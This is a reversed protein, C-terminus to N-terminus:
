MLAFYTKKHLWSNEDGILLQPADSTILLRPSTVNQPVLFTLQTTYSSAPTLPTTLPTGGTTTAPYQRGNADVLRAIRANPTL